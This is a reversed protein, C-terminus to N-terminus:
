FGINVIRRKKDIYSENLKINDDKNRVELLCEL